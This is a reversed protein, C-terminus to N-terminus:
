ATAAAAAERFQLAPRLRLLRNRRGWACAAARVDPARLATVRRCRSGAAARRRGPAIVTLVNRTLAVLDAAPSRHPNRRVIGACSFGIPGVVRELHQGCRAHVAVGWAAARCPALGRAALGGILGALVDGSGSTALGVLGGDHRLLHGDPAAIHTVPGKLVLWTQWQVAYRHAIRGSDAQIQERPRRLLHAMEGAHPTLIIQADGPPRQRNAEGALVALAGADVVCPCGQFLRLLGRVFASSGQEDQMGPGVVVAAVERALSHLRDLGNEALGGAATAPLGIVRAEPMQLALAPATEEVTAVVLKGAGARLAATGALLLAGPIQASGGVVLVQGRAEKDADASLPPLPWQHLLSANVLRVRSVM